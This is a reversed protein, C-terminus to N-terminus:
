APPRRAYRRQSALLLDQPLDGPVESRVLNLVREADITVPISQVLSRVEAEHVFKERSQVGLFLITRGSGSQIRKQWFGRSPTIGSGGAFMAVPVTTSSPPQFQIPRSVGILISSESSTNSRYDPMDPSPNLFGSSVGYLPLVPQIKDFIPDRATETRPVTFYIMSLLLENSSNSISYTRPVELSLLKPLWHLNNLDFAYDWIEQPVESISLQLLDGLNSKVPRKQSALIQQTSRSSSRLLRHVSLVLEKTLPALHGQKLIDKVKLFLDQRKSVIQLHKSFRAWESGQELPIIADMMGDLGLAASIKPVEHSTNIPM